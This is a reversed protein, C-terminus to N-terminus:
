TGTVFNFAAKLTDRDICDTSTVCSYAVVFVLIVIAAIALYGLAPLSAVIAMIGSYIWRLTTAIKRIRAAAQAIGAAEGAGAEVKATRAAANRAAQKKRNMEALANDAQKAQQTSQQAASVESREGTQSQTKSKGDPVPADGTQSLQRDMEEPLQQPLYGEDATPVYGEGQEPSTDSSTPSSQYRRAPASVQVARNTPMDAEQSVDAADPTSRSVRIPQEVAVEPNEEGEKKIVDDDQEPDVEVKKRLPLEPDVYEEGEQENEEIESPAGSSETAGTKGTQERSVEERVETESQEKKVRETAYVMPDEPPVDGVVDGSAAKNKQMRQQLAHYALRIAAESATLAAATGQLALAGSEAAYVLAKQAADLLEDSESAGVPQMALAQLYQAIAQAARADDGFQEVIRSQPNEEVQDSALLTDAM